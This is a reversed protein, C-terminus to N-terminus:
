VYIILKPEIGKKMKDVRKAMRLKSAAVEEALTQRTPSVEGIADTYLKKKELLDIRRDDHITNTDYYHSIVNETQGTRFARANGQVDKYYANPRELWHVVKASQLNLGTMGADSLFIVKADANNNFAKVKWDRGGDKNEKKADKKLHYNVPAQKGMKTEGEIFFMDKNNTMGYKEAFMKQLSALSDKRNYFIIQKKGDAAYKEYNKAIEQMRVNTKYDGNGLIKTYRSDRRQAAGSQGLSVLSHTESNFGNEKMWTAAKVTIHGDEDVLRMPPLNEIVKPHGSPERDLEYTDNSMIAHGQLNKEAHYLDENHKIMKDQEVTPKLRKEIKKNEIGKLALHETLMTDDYTRRFTDFAMEGFVNPAQNINEFQNVWKTPNKLKDPRTIHLLSAVEGLQNKLVTGTAPIFYEAGESLKKIARFRASETHRLDKFAEHAEDVTVLVPKFSKIMEPLSSKSVIESLKEARIKKAIQGRIRWDVFVDNLEKNWFEEKHEEIYKDTLAEVTSKIKKENVESKMSDHGSIVVDYKGDAAEQLAKRKADFGTVKDLELVNLHPAFKDKDKFFEIRLKSPMTHFAFSGKLKGAEKLESMIGLFGATKGTGAGLNMVMRKNLLAAKIMKQPSDFLVAKSKKRLLTAGVPDLSSFGAEGKKNVFTEWGDAKEPHGEKVWEAKKDAFETTNWTTYVEKPFGKPLYDKELAKGTKIDVLAQDRTNNSFSSQFLSPFKEYPIVVEYRGTQEKSAKITYQDESLGVTKMKNVLSGYNSGGDMIVDGVASDVDRLSDLVTATMQLNGLTMGLGRGIAQEQKGIAAQITTGKLIGLKKQKEYDEMRQLRRNITDLSDMITEMPKTGMLNELEKVAKDKGFKDAVAGAVIKGVNDVGIFEILGASLGKGKLFVDAMVNTAEVAGKDMNKLMTKNGLRDVNESEITNYFETNVQARIKIMEQQLLKEVVENEKPQKADWDIVVNGQLSTIKLNQRMPIIDDKYAEKIEKKLEKHIESIKAIELAQETTLKLRKLVTNVKPERTQKPVAKIQNIDKGALVDGYEDGLVSKLENEVVAKEAIEAVAEAAEQQVAEPQGELMSHLERLTAEAKEQVREARHVLEKEFGKIDDITYRDTLDAVKLLKERFDKEVKANEQSKMKKAEKSLEVEKETPQYQKLADIRKQKRDAVEKQLADYEEKTRPIIKLHEFAPNASFVVVAHEDKKGQHMIKLLVHNNHITIWRAPMNKRQLDASWSNGTPSAIPAHKLFVGGKAFNEKLLDTLGVYEGKAIQAVPNETWVLEWENFDYVSNSHCLILQKM